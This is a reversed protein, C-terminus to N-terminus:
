THRGANSMQRMYKRRTRGVYEQMRPFREAIFKSPWNEHSPPIADLLEVNDMYRSRLGSQSIAIDHVREASKLASHQDHDDLMRYIAGRVIRIALKIRTVTGEGRIRRNLVGYINELQSQLVHVPHMVRFTQNDLEVTRAWARLEVMEIGQIHKMFDITHKEGDIKVVVTAINPTHDDIKAANIEGHWSKSAAFAVEREGCFDIDETVLSNEAQNDYICAYVNLAQGGVLIANRTEQSEDLLKILDPIGLPRRDPM